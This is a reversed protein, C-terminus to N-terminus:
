KEISQENEPNWITLITNNATNSAVDYASNLIQENQDTIAFKVAADKKFLAMTNLILIFCVTAFAVTPRSIFAGFNEWINKNNRELRATLRTYFYPAPAARQIGDLSNLAEEAKKAINSNQTM